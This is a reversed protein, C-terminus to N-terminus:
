RAHSKRRSRVKRLLYAQELLECVLQYHHYEFTPKELLSSVRFPNEQGADEPKHGSAALLTLLVAQLNHAKVLNINSGLYTHETM